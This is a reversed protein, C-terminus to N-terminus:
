VFPPALKKKLNASLKTNTLERLDQLLELFHSRLTCLDSNTIEPLAVAKVNSINRSSILSLWSILLSKTYLFKPFRAKLFIDWKKTQANGSAIKSAKEKWTGKGPASVQLTQLAQAFPNSPLQPWKSLNKSNVHLLIHKQLSTPLIM